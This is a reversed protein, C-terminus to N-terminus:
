NRWFRVSLKWWLLLENVVGGVYSGRGTVSGTNYCNTITADSAYGVVGGVYSGSGTVSGTNYCNTITADSARGVVGGVEDRTGTVSGTNYCNTITEYAFGVVGGVSGIGSVSGTNYCNTITEYAFGVVGGVSGIGSVSGTNYCNTITIKSSSSNALGVVGGVNQYGQIHSDIVGVNQITVSSGEVCGFLGQYAYGNSSGAPTFVGSVTHGGGDYNGSFYHNTVTGSRDYVIGIPQWVYASLDINETQKFYKGRYESQFIYNISGSTTVDESDVANYYVLYSLGALDAASDIIYPNSESGDGYKETDPNNYWEVRM